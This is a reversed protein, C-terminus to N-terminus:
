WQTSFRKEFSTKVVHKTTNLMQNVEEISAWKIVAIDKPEFKHYIALDYVSQIKLPLQDLIISFHSAVENQSLERDLKKIIEPEIDEAFVDKLSYDNQHYSIDDLQDLMVLDGDGDTSFKEEMQKWEEKSYNEINKFFFEDFEEDTLTDEFLEDAKKFLWPYFANPEDKKSMQDFAEIYLQDIFDDVKYKGKPLAGKSIAAALRKSLYKKVEPLMKQMETNFAETDNEKRFHALNQIVEDIFKEEIIGSTIKNM